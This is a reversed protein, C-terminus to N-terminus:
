QSPTMLGCIFIDLDEFYDKGKLSELLFKTLMEWGEQTNHETSIQVVKM